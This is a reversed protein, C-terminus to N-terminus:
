PKGGRGRGRNYSPFINSIDKQMDGEAAQMNVGEKELISENKNSPRLKKTPRGDKSRKEPKTEDKEFIGEEAMKSVLFDARRRNLLTLCHAAFHTRIGSRTVM